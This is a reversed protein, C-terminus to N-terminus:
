FMLARLKKDQKALRDKLEEVRRKYYYPDMTLKTRERYRANKWSGLLAQRREDTFGNDGVTWVNTDGMSWIERRHGWRDPTGTETLRPAPAKLKDIEARAATAERLEETAAALEAAIRSRTKVGSIASKIRSQVDMSEGKACGAGINARTGNSLEVDVHIEHTKGCRDCPRMVGTGPVPVWRDDIEIRDRTDRVDIIRVIKPEDFTM